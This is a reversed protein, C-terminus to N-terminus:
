VPWMSVELVVLTVSAELVFGLEGRWKKKMMMMM